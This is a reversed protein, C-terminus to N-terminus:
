EPHLVLECDIVFPVDKSRSSHLGLNWARLMMTVVYVVDERATQRTAESSQQYMGLGRQGFRIVISQRKFKGNSGCNSLSPHINIASEDNWDHECPFPMLEVIVGWLEALAQESTLERPKILTARMAWGDISM